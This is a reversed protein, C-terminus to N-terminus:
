GEWLAMAEALERPEIVGLALARQPELRGLATARRLLMRAHRDTARDAMAGEIIAAGRGEVQAAQYAELKRIEGDLAESGQEFALLVALLQAPHGVWKGAMGLDRAHVADEYVLATRALFRQRNAEADLAPDAVPYALTMGDLAPVGLAGAVTVVQARAWDALIHRDAVVPLGLDASLDATGLILACLRSGARRAIAPLQALAWGSEILVAVRIRAAELGLAAEVAGLTEVLWDVEEPQEVKPFVIGDLPYAAPDRGQAAGQLVTVLDAAASPRDLGPPRYFRLTTPAWEAEQLTQIAAGRGTAAVDARDAQADEGDLVVAPAKRPRALAEGILGVPLRLREALAEPTVGLRAMQRAVPETGAEVAKRARAEDAAPVTLHAHQRWFRLGLSLRGAERAAVAVDRRREADALLDRTDAPPM